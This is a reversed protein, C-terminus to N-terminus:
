TRGRAESFGNSLSEDFFACLDHSSVHVAFAQFRGEAVGRVGVDLGDGCVYGGLAIPLLHYLQGLVLEAADVDEDVIRSGGVRIFRGQFYCFGLKVLYHIDIDLADEEAYWYNHRSHLLSTATAYDIDCTDTGHPRSRTKHPVVGALTSHCIYTAMM